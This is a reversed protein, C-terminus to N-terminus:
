KRGVYIGYGLYEFFNKPLSTFRGKMYKRFARSKIYLALARYLMGPLDRIYLRIENIYESPSAKFKYTRAVIEKLGCNRLSEEWGDSTLIEAEIDWSRSSYEVLELPPTKIWIEENLGVYGGPKTVRVYENVARQKHKIFTIVSEGIVADFLADEFPLNQADAVRFEVRNEVGEKKARENARDIMRELIDVGVLRCGHRKAIYCSTAGVGCGVDLVYKGKGIRCLEILERTAKLGGMHKTAGWYAELEFYSLELKSFERPLSERKSEMKGEGHM